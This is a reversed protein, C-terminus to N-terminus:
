SRLTQPRSCVEGCATSVSVSHKVVGQAADFDHVQRANKGAGPAGLVQGIKAGLDDLDFVRRAAVIRAAPARGVQSGVVAARGHGGIEHRAVPALLRNGDVEGRFRARRAHTFQDRLGVDQDFVVLCAPQAFVAQVIRRKCADVRAQDVQGNGAVALGAGHGVLGAIVVHELAHAPQHAVGALRVARGAGARQAGPNGHDVQHCAHVGRGRDQGGQTLAVLRPLAHWQIDAQQIHGHRQVGVLAGVVQHGAHRGLAAAVRMGVTRGVFHECAGIAMQDQRNAVVGLKRAKAGHGPMGFPRQIRAIRGVARSQRVQVAQARLHRPDQRGRWAPVPGIREVTGAHWPPRDVRQVLDVRMRLHQM